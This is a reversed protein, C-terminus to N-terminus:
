WFRYTRYNSKKWDNALLNNTDLLYRTWIEAYPCAIMVPYEHEEEPTAHSTLDARFGANCKDTCFLKRFMLQHHGIITDCYLTSTFRNKHVIHCGLNPPPIAGSTRSGRCEISAFSLGFAVAVKSGPFSGGKGISYYLTTPGWLRNQRKSSSFM